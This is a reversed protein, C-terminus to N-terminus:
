AERSETISTTRSLWWVSLRWVSTLCFRRKICGGQPPPPMIIIISNIYRWVTIVESAGTREDFFYRTYHNVFCLLYCKVYLHTIPQLLCASLPQLTSCTTYCTCSATDRTHHPKSRQRSSESHNNTDSSSSTQEGDGAQGFLLRRAIYSDQRGIIHM